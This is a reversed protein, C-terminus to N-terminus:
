GSDARANQRALVRRSLRASPHLSRRCSFNWADAVSHGRHFPDTLFITYRELSSVIGPDSQFSAAAVFVMPLVFFGLLVGVAPLLIWISGMSLAYGRNVRAGAMRRRVLFRSVASGMSFPPEGQNVVTATLRLGSESMSIMTIVAGLYTTDAVTGPWCTKSPERNATVELREPRIALTLAGDPPPTFGHEIDLELPSGEIACSLTSASGRSEVHARILNCAGVFRAVFPTAPRQYIEEPTGVQEIM